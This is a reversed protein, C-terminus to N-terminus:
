AAHGGDAQHDVARNQKNRLRKANSKEWEKKQKLLEKNFNEVVLDLLRSLFEHEPVVHTEICDTCYAGPLGFTFWYDDIEQQCRLCNM